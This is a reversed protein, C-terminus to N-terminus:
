EIVWSHMAIGLRRSDSEGISTGTLATPCYFTLKSVPLIFLEAPLDVELHSQHQIEFGGVRFYNFFVQLTHITHPGNYPHVDFKLTYRTAPRRIMMEIDAETGNIWTFKEEPAHWGKVHYKAPFDARTCEVLYGPAYLPAAM